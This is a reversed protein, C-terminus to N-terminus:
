KSVEVKGTVRNELVKEYKGHTEVQMYPNFFMAGGIQKAPIRSTSRNGKHLCKKEM